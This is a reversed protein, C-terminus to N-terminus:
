CRVDIVESDQIGGAKSKLVSIAASFVMRMMV